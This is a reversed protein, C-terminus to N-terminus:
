TYIIYESFKDLVEDITFSNVYYDMNESLEPIQEVKNEFCILDLTKSAWSLYKEDRYNGLFLDGERLYKLNRRRYTEPHRTEVYCGYTEYESFGCNSLDITRITNMIKEYFTDGRLSFDDNIEQLMERMYETRIIMHESIFSYTNRKKVEGNFLKGLTCFYSPVYETKVNFLPMGDNDFFNLKRLPLLDADWILYYEDECKNAYAMKLFQQLYWGSMSKSFPDRKTIISQICKYSLPYFLLDEDIFVCGEKECEFQLEKNGIVVIRNASLNERIHKSIHSLLAMNKKAMMIVVDFKM